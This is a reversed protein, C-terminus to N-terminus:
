PGINECVSHAFINEYTNGVQKVSANRYFLYPIDSATNIHALTVLLDVKINGCCKVIVLKLGVFSFIGFGESYLIFILIRDVSTGDDFIVVVFHENLIRRHRRKLSLLKVSYIRQGVHSVVVGRVFLHASYRRDGLDFKRDCVVSATETATIETGKRKM